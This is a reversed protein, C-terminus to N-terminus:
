TPKSPGLVKQSPVQIGPAELSRRCMRDSCGPDTMQSSLSLGGTHYVPCRVSPGSPADVEPVAYEAWFGFSEIIFTVIGDMSPRPSPSREEGVEEEEEEEEEDDDDDDVM